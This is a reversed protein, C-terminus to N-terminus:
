CLPESWWCVLVIAFIFEEDFYLEMKLGYFVSMMERGVCPSVWAFPTIPDAPACFPNLRDGHNFVFLFTSGGDRAVHGAINVFPGIYRSSPTGSLFRRCPPPLPPVFQGEAIILSCPSNTTTGREGETKLRPRFLVSLQKPIKVLIGPNKKWGGERNKNFVTRPSEPKVSNVFEKQTKFPHLSIKQKKLSQFLEFFTSQSYISKSDSIRLTM